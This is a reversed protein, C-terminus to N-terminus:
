PFIALIKKKKRFNFKHYRSFLNELDKKLKQFDLYCVFQIYM